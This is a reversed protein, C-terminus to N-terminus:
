GVKIANFTFTGAIAHGADHTFVITFATADTLSVLTGTRAFMTTLLPATISTAVATGAKKLEIKRYTGATSQLTNDISVLVELQYKGAPLSFAHSAFSLGADNYVSTFDVTTAGIALAFAAATYQSTLVSLSAIGNTQTRLFAENNKIYIRAEDSDIAGSHDSSLNDLLISDSM